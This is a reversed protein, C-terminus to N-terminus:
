VAKNIRLVARMVPPGPQKRRTTWSSLTVPVAGALAGSV